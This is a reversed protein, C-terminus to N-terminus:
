LGVGAGRNASSRFVKSRKACTEGIAGAVKFGKDGEAEFEQGARVIKVRYSPM